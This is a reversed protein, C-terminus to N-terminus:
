DGPLLSYLFGERRIGRQDIGDAVPGDLTFGAAELVRMSADNGAIVDAELRAFGAEAFAWRTLLRVARSAYGQRRHERGIWYGIRGLARGDVPFVGVAGAVTAPEGAPNLCFPAGRGTRWDDPTRGLFALGDERTYPEPMLTWRPIEPDACCAVLGDVDDLHWLRLQVVGDTLPVTPPRFALQAM